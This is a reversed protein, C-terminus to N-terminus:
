VQGSLPKWHFPFIAKRFNLKKRLFFFKALVEAYKRMENSPSFLSFFIKNRSIESEDTKRFFMIM